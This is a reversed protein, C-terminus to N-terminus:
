DASGPQDNPIEFKYGVGKITIICDMGIKERLKRIYVDITRQGVSQDGEWVYQYIENRTFVRSPRSTLLCLLNFEKKPLTMEMGSVTVLYRESDIKIHGLNQSVNKNVAQKEESYHRKLLAKLRSLLVKPRVPKTIYDDAGADFGAIQSYDESRATLFAIITHELLPDERMKECTEIGDMDPMMVDLLILHPRDKHAKELAEVGSHAINVLFGEKKLNYGLFETIDKEDDVVLIRYPENEM